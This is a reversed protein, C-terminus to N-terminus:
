CGPITGQNGQGEAYGFVRCQYFTGNDSENDEWVQGFLGGPAAPDAVGLVVLDYDYDRDPVYVNGLYLSEEKGAQLAPVSRSLAVQDVVTGTDARRVEVAARLEFGGADRVGINEVAVLLEVADWWVETDVDSVVLNPLAIRPLDMIEHLRNLVEEDIQIGADECDLRWVREEDICAALAPPLYLVLALTTACLSLLKM